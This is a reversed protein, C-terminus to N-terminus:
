PTYAYSNPNNCFSQKLLLHKLHLIFDLIFLVVICYVVFFLDCVCLLFACFDSLAIEELCGKLSLYSMGPIHVTHM